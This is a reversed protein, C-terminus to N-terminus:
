RGLVHATVDFAENGPMKGTLTERIVFGCSRYLAIAPENGALVEISVDEAVRELAFRLLSKGIGRHAYDVDVYLWGIEDREFAVFGAVIGEYEAVYVDYDFLGEREAAVSLPLFAGEVGALKLENKRAPDHIRELRAFDTEEYPRISILNETHM